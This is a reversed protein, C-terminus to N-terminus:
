VSSLSQMKSIFKKPDLFKWGNKKLFRIQNFYISHDKKPTDHLMMIRLSDKTSDPFSVINLNEVIKKKLFFRIKPLNVM